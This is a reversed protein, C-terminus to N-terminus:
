PWTFTVSQDIAVKESIVVETDSAAKARLKASVSGKLKNPIDLSGNGQLTGLQEVRGLPQIIWWMRAKNTGDRTRIAYYVKGSVNVGLWVDSTQGSAIKVTKTQSFASGCLLLLLAGYVQGKAWIRKM